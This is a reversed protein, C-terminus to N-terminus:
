DWDLTANGSGTNDKWDQVLARFKIEEKKLTITYTYKNGSTWETVAADTADTCKNLQLSYTTGDTLTIILRTNDSITQPVMITEDSATIDAITSGPTIDGTAIDIIGDKILNTLTIKAGTLDVASADSSTALSVVVKSMVHRFTLPVDGTRPNIAAGEAYDHATSGDAETGTHAATTGWLLDTGQNVSTTEVAELTHETTKKALARFYYNTSSNAWYIAPSNVFQSGNFTATTAITGFDTNDTTRWLSFSDGNKLATANNKDISTVDAKFNIEGTGTASVDTWDALTAVVSIAQKKLTITLKYNYGSQSVNNDIGSAWSTLIDDTLLVQYDNGDVNQIIALLQGSTLATMPVAVAEYARCPKSDTTTTVANAFMKVTTTGTAEVTATPATFTGKENMGDLTVTTADLDDAKFGEGAVVVITFKSMAHTYPITLGSRGEKAHQYTVPEQAASWLLDNKKMDGDTTQDDDTTWGLVGTAEVLATTPTGGNYCYGYFSQLAHNSTRLDNDGSNSDSYDDWYQKVTPEGDKNLTVLRKYASVEQYNKDTSLDNSYIHRVYCKLVDDDDFQGGVARTVPCNGSLSTEFLLPLRSQEQSFDDDSTCGALMLTTLALTIYKKITMKYM